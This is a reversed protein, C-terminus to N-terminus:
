VPNTDSPEGSDRPASLDRVTVDLCLIDIQASWVELRVHWFTGSPLFEKIASISTLEAYDWAVDHYEKGADLAGDLLTLSAVGTLTLVYRVPRKNKYQAEVEIRLRHRKVDFRSGTIVTGWLSNLLDHGLPGFRDPDTM